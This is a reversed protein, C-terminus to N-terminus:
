TRYCNAHISRYLTPQQLDELISVEFSALTLVTGVLEDSITGGATALKSNIVRIAESKHRLKDVRLENLGKALIGYL